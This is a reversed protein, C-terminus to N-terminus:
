AEPGGSITITEQAIQEGTGDYYYVQVPVIYEPNKGSDASANLFIQLTAVEVEANLWGISEDELIFLFYGQATREATLKYSKEFDENNHITKLTFRLEAQRARPQDDFLVLPLTVGEGSGVSGSPAMLLSGEGKERYALSSTDYSRGSIWLIAGDETESIIMRDCWSFDIEEVGLIESPGILKAREEMRFQFRLVPFPTGSFFGAATLILVILALNWLVRKPKSITRKMKM